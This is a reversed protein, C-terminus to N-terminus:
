EVERPTEGRQPTAAPTKAAPARLGKKAANVASEVMLLEECGSAGCVSRLVQMQEIAKPMNDQDLYHLALYANAGLHTPMVALARSFNERAQKRDGLQAYAVGLYTYADAHPGHRQIVATTEGLAEAYKGTALFYEAKTLGSDARFPVEEKVSVEAQATTVILLGAILILIFRQM